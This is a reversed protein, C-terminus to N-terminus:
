RIYIVLSYLFFRQESSDVQGVQPGHRVPATSSNRLQVYSHQVTVPFVGNNLAPLTLLWIVLLFPMNSYSNICMTKALMSSPESVNKDNLLLLRVMAFQENNQGRTQIRSMWVVSWWQSSRWFIFFLFKTKDFSNIFASNGGHFILFAYLWWKSLM